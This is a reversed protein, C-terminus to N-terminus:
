QTITVSGIFQKLTTPEVIILGSIYKPQDIFLVEVGKSASKAVEVIYVLAPQKDSDIFWAFQGPTAEWPKSDTTITM